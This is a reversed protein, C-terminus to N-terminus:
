KQEKDQQHTLEMFVKKITEFSLSSGYGFNLIKQQEEKPLSDFILTRLEELEKELSKSYCKWCLEIGFCNMGDNFKKHCSACIWKSM